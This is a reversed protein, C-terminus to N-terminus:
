MDKCELLCYDEPENRNKAVKLHGEFDFRQHNGMNRPPM